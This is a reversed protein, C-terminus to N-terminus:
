PCIAGLLRRVEQIQEAPTGFLNPYGESQWIQLVRLAWGVTPGRKGPPPFPEQRPLPPPKTARPKTM